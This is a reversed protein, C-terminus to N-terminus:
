GAVRGFQDLNEAYVLLRVEIEDLDYKKRLDALNVQAARIDFVTRPSFSRRPVYGVSVGLDCRTSLKM